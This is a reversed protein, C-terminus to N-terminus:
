KSAKLCEEFGSTELRGWGPRNEFVLIGTGIKVDLLSLLSLALGESERVEFLAVLPFEVVVGCRGKVSSGIDAVAGLRGTPRGIRRREVFLSESM